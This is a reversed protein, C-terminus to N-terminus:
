FDEAISGKKKDAMLFGITGSLFKWFGWALPAFWVFVIQHASDLTSMVFWLFLGSSLLVVFFGLMAQRIDHQRITRIRDARAHKYIQEAIAPPVNNVTLKQEIKEKPEDWLVMKLIIEYSPHETPDDLPTDTLLSDDSTM